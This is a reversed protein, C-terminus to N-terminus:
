ISKIWVFVRVQGRPSPTRTKSIYLSTEELSSVDTIFDKLNNEPVFLNFYIGGPIDIGPKVQGAALAEYQGILGKVKDRAGKPSVSNMMLRYANRSGYQSDRYDSKKTEEYESKVSGADEIDKPLAEVSTVVVDSEVDFREEEFNEIKFNEAEQKELKEIEKLSLEIEAQPETAENKFTLTKNLWFLNPEFLSVKEILYSEYWRNGVRLVVIVIFGIIFLLFIEKLFVAQKRFSTKEKIKSLDFKKGLFSREMKKLFINWEPYLTVELSSLMEDELSGREQPMLELKKRINEYTYYVNKSTANAVQYVENIENELHPYRTVFFDRLILAIESESIRTQESIEHININKYIYIYCILKNKLWNFWSLLPGTKLVQKTFEFRNMVQNLSLSDLFFHNWFENFEKEFRGEWTINALNLEIWNQYKEFDQTSLTVVNM